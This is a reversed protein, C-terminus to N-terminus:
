ASSLKEYYYRVVIDIYKAETQICMRDLDNDLLQESTEVDQTFGLFTDELNTVSSALKKVYAM